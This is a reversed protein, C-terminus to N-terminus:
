RLRFGKTALGDVTQKQLKEVEEPALTRDKSAFVVKVSVSKKDEPIPSGAYTSVVSVSQVLDKGSERIIDCIEKAYVQRDALVSVEFPVDPYKQLETFVTDQRRSGYLLDIDIDFLAAAGSLDFAAITEPHLEFVLGAAQRGVILKMARGPHAYPPLDRSEPVLDWDAILLKRMLGSAIQKAAYFLPDGPKKRYVAGTVMTRETALEASSREKKLYVRGLEFISFEEHFRSNYKIVNVISPVLSRRLRDQESSLPNSLRLERDENVGLKTLTDEGIFSYGSVEIMNLNGSLVTKVRREFLRFLNKEPPACPVAPANPTINDYGYIRGVEEVIDEPISIDKTARYSPVEISLAGGEPTLKFDLSTLISTIRGDDVNEGLRTRIFDTTTKIVIPKQKVPYADIITSAAEAGPLVQKILDYCRLLAPVTVEPSLSKEFRIAAETRHAYRNATKRINVPNFSAAELVIETTGDEIESNGGGMVGALAVPGRADAIVIDEPLLEFVSGDLTTLPEKNKALRVIIEQGNLKKRDFAHMPEGIEAMVYNTIDVINNIPRMGISEIMAKLWDPSEEIRIGTVVLGSYRPSAEPNEIRVTLKERDKFTKMLDYNVISKFPRGYLAGIERAFGVHSWLDPRHTISKNDIEFRVDARHPYLESLPAGIKTGAPLVMIGSHDDYLGLERESCLMGESEEGRIRAKKIVMDEGFRTGVTALPVIDGKRHNPAGCVVRIKRTGLDCDVLTLKDANPHPKVDLIQAAYITAFHANMREISDIEATSMTLRLAMEEPDIGTTDVMQSLINLSLWM